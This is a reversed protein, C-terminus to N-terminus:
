DDAVVKVVQDIKDQESLGISPLAVIFTIAILVVLLNRNYKAQRAFM